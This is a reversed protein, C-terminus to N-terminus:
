PVALKIPIIPFSSKKRFLDDSERSMPSSGPIVRQSIAEGLWKVVVGSVAFNMLKKLM